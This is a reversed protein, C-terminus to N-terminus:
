PQQQQQQEKMSQQQAVPSRSAYAEELPVIEDAWMITIIYAIFWVCMFKLHTHAHTHTASYAFNGPVHLFKRSNISINLLM